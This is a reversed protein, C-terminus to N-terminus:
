REHCQKDWGTPELSIEYFCYKILIWSYELDDRTPGVQFEWSSRVCPNLFFSRIKGFRVAQTELVGGELQVSYVLAPNRSVIHVSHWTYAPSNQARFSSSVWSEPLGLDWSDLRWHLVTVRQEWSSRAATQPKSQLNITEESPGRRRM